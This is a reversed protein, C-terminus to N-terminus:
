SFSAPSGNAAKSSRTPAAHPRPHQDPGLGPDEVRLALGDLARQRREAELAHAVHVDAPQDLEVHLVGRLQRRHALLQQRVREDLVVLDEAGSTFNPTMWNGPEQSSTSASFAAEADAVRDQEPVAVVVELADVRHDDGAPEGVAVVQAGARQRPERRDHDLDLAEGAVAAEHEADAVAELDQALRPQEGPASSGFM